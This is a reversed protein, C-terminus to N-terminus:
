HLVFTIHVAVDYGESTRSVADDRIVNAELTM